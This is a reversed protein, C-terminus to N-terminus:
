LAEVIEIVNKVLNPCVTMLLNKEEIIKAESPISLNYALIDSCKNYKKIKAFEEKYQFVKSIMQGKALEDGSKCHGYKLGLAILGGVYAGCLDAEFMGAGFAASSKLAIETDIGLGKAISYSIVQACDFGKEFMDIIKKEDIM